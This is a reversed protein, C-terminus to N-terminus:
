TPQKSLRDHPERVGLRLRRLPWRPWTASRSRCSLTEIGKNGVAPEEFTFGTALNTQDWHILQTIGGLVRIDESLLEIGVIDLKAILVSCNACNSCSLTEYVSLHLHNLQSKSSCQSVSM